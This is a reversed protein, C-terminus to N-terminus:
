KDAKAPPLEKLGEPLKSLVSMMTKFRSETSWATTRLFNRESATVTILYALRVEDRVAHFEFQIADSGNVKVNQFPSTSTNTFDSSGKLMTAVKEAYTKLDWTLDRRDEVTIMVGLDLKANLATLQVSADPSESTKWGAPLTLEVTGDKGKFIQDDGTVAPAPTSPAAQDFTTKLGASLTALIPKNHDFESQGSWGDVQEFHNDLRFATILYGLKIGNVTCKIEFRLADAKKIKLAKPVTCTVDTFKQKYIDSVNKTYDALTQTSDTADEVIVMVGNEQKEDTAMLQITDPLDPTLRTSTWGAPLQMQVTRDKGKVIDAHLTSGFLSLTFFLITPTTRRAIHQM